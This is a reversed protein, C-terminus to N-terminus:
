YQMGVFGVCSCISFAIANLTVTVGAIDSNAANANINVFVEGLLDTRPQGSMEGDEFGQPAAEFM